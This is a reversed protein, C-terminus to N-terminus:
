KFLSPQCVQSYHRGMNLSVSKAVESTLHVGDRTKIVVGKSLENLSIFSDNNFTHLFATRVQEALPSKELSPEVPMEFFVVQTGGNQLMEVFKKYVHLQNVLKAEPMLQGYDKQQLAFMNRFLVDNVKPEDAVGKKIVSTFLNIPINQTYFIPSIKALKSFSRDVLESNSGRQPVNIEILVLKPKRNSKTIINLGTLASDGGLSLNYICNDSGQIKLRAALSSGVMVVPVESFNNIYNEVIYQNDQWMNQTIIHEPKIGYRLFVDYSVLLILVPLFINKM